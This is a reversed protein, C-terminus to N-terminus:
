GGTTTGAPIPTHSLEFHVRYKQGSEGHAMALDSYSLYILERVPQNNGNKMEHGAIISIM